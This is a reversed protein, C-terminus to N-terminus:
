KSSSKNKKSLIEEEKLKHKKKVKEIIVLKEREYDEIGKRQIESLKSTKM